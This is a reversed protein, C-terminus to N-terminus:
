DALLNLTISLDATGSFTPAGRTVLVGWITTGSAAKIAKGIGDANILGPTGGNVTGAFSISGIAKALDTGIAYAAKDTPATPASDFLFLDYAVNNGSKDFLVASQLIGGGGATRLFGPGFSLLGGVANGSAYASGSTVTPAVNARATPNGVVPAPNGASQPVANGGADVYHGVVAQAVDPTKNLISYDM